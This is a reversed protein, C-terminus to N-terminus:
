DWWLSLVNKYLIRNIQKEDPSEIESAQLKSCLNAINEASVNGIIYVRESYPWMEEEIEYIEVFVDVQNTNRFSMLESYFFDIGPHETLNCALSGEDDNGDFFDELSVAVIPGPENSFGMAKVKKSLLEMKQVNM